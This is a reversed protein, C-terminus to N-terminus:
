MGENGISCIIWFTEGHLTKIKMQNWWNQRSSRGATRKFMWWFLLFEWLQTPLKHKYIAFILSYWCHWRPFRSLSLSLSFRWLILFAAIALLAFIWGESWMCLCPFLNCCYWVCVCYCLVFCNFSFAINCQVFHVSHPLKIISISITSLFRLM